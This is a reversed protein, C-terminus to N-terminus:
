LPQSLHSNFRFLVFIHPRMQFVRCAARREGVEGGMRVREAM